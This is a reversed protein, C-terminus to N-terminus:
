KSEEKNEIDIMNAKLLLAYVILVVGCLYIVMDM